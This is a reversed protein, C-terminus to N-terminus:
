NRLYLKSPKVNNSNPHPFSEILTIRKEKKNLRRETLAHGFHFHLSSVSWSVDNACKIQRSQQFFCLITTWLGSLLEPEKQVMWYGIVVKQRRLEYLLRDRISVHMMLNTMQEHLHRWTGAEAVELTARIM